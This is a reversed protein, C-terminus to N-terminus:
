ASKLLVEDSYYRVQAEYLTYLFLFFRSLWFKPFINLFYSDKSIVCCPLTMLVCANNGSPTRMTNVTQPDFTMLPDSGTSFWNKKFIM